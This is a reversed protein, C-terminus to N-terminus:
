FYSFEVSCFIFTIEMLTIAAFHLAGAPFRSKIEMTKWQAVEVGVLDLFGATITISCDIIM